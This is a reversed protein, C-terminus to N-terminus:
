LIPCVLVVAGVLLLEWASAAASSSLLRSWCALYATQTQASPSTSLSAGLVAGAAFVLLCPRTLLNGLSSYIDVARRCFGWVGGMHRCWWVGAGGRDVVFVKMQHPLKKHCIWLHWLSCSWLSSTNLEGVVKQVSNPNKKGPLLMQLMCCPWPEAHWPVPAPLLLVEWCLSRNRWGAFVRRHRFDCAFSRPVLTVNPLWHRGLLKCIFGVKEEEVHAEPDCRDVQLIILGNNSSNVTVLNVTNLFWLLAILLGADTNSSQFVTTDEGMIVEM